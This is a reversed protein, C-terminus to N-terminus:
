TARDWRGFLLQDATFTELTVTRVVALWADWAVADECTITELEGAVSLSGVFLQHRPRRTM